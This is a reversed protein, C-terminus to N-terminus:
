KRCQINGPHEEYPFKALFKRHEEGHCAEIRGGPEISSLQSSEGLDRTIM